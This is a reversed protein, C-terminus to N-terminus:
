NITCTFLKYLLLNSLITNYAFSSFGIASFHFYIPPMNNFLFPTIRERSSTDRKVPRDRPCVSLLVLIVSVMEVFSLM